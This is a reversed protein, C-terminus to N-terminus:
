KILQFPELNSLDENLSKIFKEIASKIFTGKNFEFNSFGYHIGLVKFKKLSLIPSGSSGFDTCCTHLILNDKIEQSM